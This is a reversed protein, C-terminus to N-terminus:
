EYLPFREAIPDGTFDGVWGEPNNFWRIATFEPNAGMDFWHRALAPVFLLDGKICIAQYVSDKARLYFAGSGEVFYRVEDDKHSHEALFKARL